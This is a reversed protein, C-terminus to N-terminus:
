SAIKSLATNFLANIEERTLNLMSPRPYIIADTPSPPNLTSFADYILRRLRNRVVSSKAVASPIVVAFRSYNLSNASIVASFHSNNLRRGHSKARIFDPRALRRKKPLM